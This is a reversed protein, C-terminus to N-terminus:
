RSHYNVQVFSFDDFWVSSEGDAAAFIGAITAQEPPIIVMEYYKWSPRVDIVEIDAGLYKGQADSWHLQLRAKQRQATSRVFQGLLYFGEPKLYAGQYYASLAGPSQVAALGSHSSLGSSYVISM